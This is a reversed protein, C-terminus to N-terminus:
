AESQKMIRKYKALNMINEDRSREVEPKEAKVVDALL